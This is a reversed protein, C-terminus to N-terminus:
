SVLRNDYCTAMNTFLFCINHVEVCHFMGFLLSLVATESAYSRSHNDRHPHMDMAQASRHM